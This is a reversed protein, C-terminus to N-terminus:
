GRPSWLQLYNHISTRSMGHREAWDQFHDHFSALNHILSQLVNELEADSAGGSFDQVIMKSQSTQYIRAPFRQLDTRCTKGFASNIRQIRHLIEADM